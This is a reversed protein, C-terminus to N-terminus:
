TTRIKWYKVFSFFELFDNKELYLLEFLSYKLDLPVMNVPLSEIYIVELEQITLGEVIITQQAFLILCILTLQVETMKKKKKLKSM